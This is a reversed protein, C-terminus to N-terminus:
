KHFFSLFVFMFCNKSKRLVHKKGSLLTKVYRSSSIRMKVQFINTTFKTSNLFITNDRMREPILNLKDIM